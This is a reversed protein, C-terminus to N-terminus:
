LRIIYSSTLSCMGHYLDAWHDRPHTLFGQTLYQQLRPWEEREFQTSTDPKWGNFPDFDQPVAKTFGEIFAKFFQPELCGVSM